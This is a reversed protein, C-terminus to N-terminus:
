RTYQVREGSRRGAIRNLKIGELTSPWADEDDRFLDVPADDAIPAAPASDDVHPDVLPPHHVHVPEEAPLAPLVEEVGIDEDYDQVPLPLVPGPAEAPQVLAIDTYDSDDPAAEDQAIIGQLAKM